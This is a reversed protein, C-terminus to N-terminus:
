IGHKDFLEICYSRAAENRPTPYGSTEISDVGYNNIQVTPAAVNGEEMKKFLSGVYANAASSTCSKLSVVSQNHSQATKSIEQHPAVDNSNRTEQGPNEFKSFLFNAYNEAAATNGQHSSQLSHLSQM